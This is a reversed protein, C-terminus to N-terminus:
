PTRSADPIVIYPDAPRNVSVIGVAYMPDFELCDTQAIKFEERAMENIQERHFSQGADSFAYKGTTAQVVARWIARRGLARLRRIQRTGQVGNTSIINAIITEGYELLTDNLAEQVAPSGATWGLMPGVEGLVGFLYDSFIAESYVTPPPM